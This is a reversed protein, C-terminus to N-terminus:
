RRRNLVNKNLLAHISETTANDGASALRGMSRQLGAARIVAQFSRSRFQGGRGSHVIVTGTSKRRAIAPRRATVALNATMRQGTAYGFIRNSCLDGNACTHVKGEITPHETIDIPWVADPRDVCFNRQVLDDFM